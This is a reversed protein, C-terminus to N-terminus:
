ANPPTKTSTTSLNSLIKVSQQKLNHRLMTADTMSQETHKLLMELHCLRMQVLRHRAIQRSRPKAQRWEEEAEAQLLELHGITPLEKDELHEIVALDIHLKWNLLPIILGNHIEYEERVVIERQYIEQSSLQTYERKIQLVKEELEALAQPIHELMKGHVFEQTILAWIGPESLSEWYRRPCIDLALINTSNDEELFLAAKPMGNISNGLLLTFFSPLPKGTILSVGHRYIARAEKKTRV